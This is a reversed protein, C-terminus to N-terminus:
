KLEWFFIEKAYDFYNHKGIANGDHWLTAHGSAWQYNKAELIYIGKKPGIAAQVDTLSSPSLIKVDPEGFRSPEALWNKLQIASSIIGKGRLEGHSILFDKRVAYNAKNLAISVRTACANTFIRRDYNEGFISVFVDHGSQDEGWTTERNVLPYGAYVGAWSPRIPNVSAVMTGTPTEIIAKILAM